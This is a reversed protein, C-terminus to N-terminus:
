RAQSDSTPISATPGEAAASLKHSGMVERPTLKDPSTKKSDVVARKYAESMQRYKRKGCGPTLTLCSIMDWMPHEVNVEIHQQLCWVLEWILAAM